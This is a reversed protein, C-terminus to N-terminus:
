PSTRPQSAKIADKIPGQDTHPSPASESHVFHALRRDDRTRATKRAALAPDQDRKERAAKYAAVADGLKESQRRARSQAQGLAQAQWEAQQAADASAAEADTALSSLAGAFPVSQHLSAGDQAQALGGYTRTLTRSRQALAASRSEQVLADALGRMAARQSVEALLAQRKALRLRRRERKM